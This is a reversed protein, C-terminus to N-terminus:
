VEEVLESFNGVKKVEITREFHEALIDGRHSVVFINSRDDLAGLIQLVNSVGDTDLSKDFIEDMVLLNTSASNNMIAVDRWAFLLALDIRQKEGESFSEYRFDDRERAKLTEDFNEDMEFSVFFDLVRLYKNVLSNIVPIYERLIVTKIGDDRLLTAMADLYEKESATSVKEKMVTDYEAKLADLKKKENDIDATSILSKIESKARNCLSNLTSIQSELSRMKEKIVREKEAFVTYEAQDKDIRRIKQRLSDIDYNIEDIQLQLSVVHGNIHNEDVKAGCESCVDKGLLEEIKGNLKKIESVKKDIDWSHRQSESSRDVLGQAELTCLTTAQDKLEAKLASIKETSEVVERALKKKKESTDTSLVKIYSEQISLRDQVLTIKNDLSGLIKKNESVDNKLLKNMTSFLGINLLDEVVERRNPSSLQMFPRYSATGIIAVQTFAKFSMGIVNEELYNQYDKNLATQELLEGDQYIEFLNPKIGRHVRYEKGNNSFYIDVECQKGNISNILAPKTISRYARNFLVFCIADLLISSKGQGNKGTVLTNKSALLDLETWAGGFSLFNRVRIKSFVIM